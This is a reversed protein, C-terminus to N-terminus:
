RDSAITSVLVVARSPTSNSSVIPTDGMEIWFEGPGFIKPEDSGAAEVAGEVVLVVSQAGPPTTSSTSAGPDYTRVAQTLTYSPATPAVPVRALAPVSPAPRSPVPQDATAISIEAGRPIIYTALIPAAGDVEDRAYHVDNRIEVWTAGAEYTTDRGIAVRRHVVQGELLTAFGPGPHYHVATGAGPAFVVLAVIQDLPGDPLPPVTFHSEMSTTVSSATEVSQTLATDPAFALVAILLGAVAALPRSRKM